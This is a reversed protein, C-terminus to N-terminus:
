ATGLIRKSYKATGYWSLAQGCVCCCAVYDMDVVNHCSPCCLWNQQNLEWILMPICRTVCEELLSLEQETLQITFSASKHSPTKRRLNRLNTREQTM